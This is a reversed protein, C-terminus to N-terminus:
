ATDLKELREKRAKIKKGKGVTSIDVTEDLGYCCGSRRTNDDRRWEDKM